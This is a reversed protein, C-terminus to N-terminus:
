IEDTIRIPVYIFEVSYVPAIAVEVWLENAARRAPTNIVEDCRVAWDSLGRLGAIGSLYRDVSNRVSAWTLADNQQGLFKRLARTLDFRMKAILRAVNIRSLPTSSGYLTKQGWVRLGTEYFFVIPNINLGYVTEFQGRTMNLAHYEGDDGLYGVSSANFVVGREDGFPAFWPYSNADSYAITRMAVTSPPVMVSAGDSNTSMAWPYYAAALYSGSGAFGDEGTESAANANTKWETLTIETGVPTGSPIARAPADAIVLATEDIDANITVMDDYLEPYGPAAIMEFKHAQSRVEDIAAAAQLARVVVYRQSRRGFRAGADPRWRRDTEEDFAKPVLPDGALIVPEYDEDWVKVTNKTSPDGTNIWYTGDTVLSAAVYTDTISVSSSIDEWASGNWRKVVPFLDANAGSVDIWIAGSAPSTPASASIVKQRNTPNANTTTAVAEWENGSEVYMAFDTVDDSFWAQGADPESTPEAAQLTFTLTSFTSGDAVKLPRRGNTHLTSTDEWVTGATATPQTDSRVVTVTQWTDDSARYKTLKLDLGGAASATKWWYDNAGAGTPATAGVWLEDNTMSRGDIAPARLTSGSLTVASSSKTLTYANGASGATDYEITLTTAGPTYTAVSLSPNVSGNLLTALATITDALAVELNVQNGTAGSTVFTVAVGNFTITDGNGPNGSFTAVGTPKWGYFPTWAGADSKYVITGNTDSYNFGFDGASGGSPAASFVTFDVAEWETDGSNRRFVGGVVADSDMWYTGDPAPNTPEDESPMLQGLDVDARVYYAASSQRLYSWLAHAGYENTEDGHVPAGASTVFTPDGLLQLAERTSTVLRLVEAEQTGAAITTAGQATKDARTALVILPRLTNSQQTYVVQNEVSISVGPATLTTPM